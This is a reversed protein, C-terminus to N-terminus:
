PHQLLDHREQRDGQQRHGEDSGRFDYEGGAAQNMFGFLVKVAPPVRELLRRQPEGIGDDIQVTDRFRELQEAVAGALHAHVQGEDHAKGLALCGVIQRGVRKTQSRDM